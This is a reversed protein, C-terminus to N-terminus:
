KKLVVETHIKMSYFCVHIILRIFVRMEDKFSLKGRKKMQNEAFTRKERSKDHNYFKDRISHTLGRSQCQEGFYESM